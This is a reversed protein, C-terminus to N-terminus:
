GTEVGTWKGPEHCLWLIKRDVSFYVTGVNPNPNRGADPGSQVTGTPKTTHRIWNGMKGMGSNAIHM